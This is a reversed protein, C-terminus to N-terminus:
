LEDQLVHPGADHRAKPSTVTRLLLSVTSRSSRRKSVGVDFKAKVDVSRPSSVPTGPPSLVSNDQQVVVAADMAAIPTLPPTRVRRQSPISDFTKVAPYPQESSHAHQNMQLPPLPALASRPAVGATTSAQALAASILDSDEPSPTRNSTSHRRQWAPLLPPLVASRLPIQEFRDALIKEPLEPLLAPLHHLPTLPRIVLRSDDSFPHADVAESHFSSSSHMSANSQKSALSANRHMLMERQEELVATAEMPAAPPEQTPTPDGFLCISLRDILGPQSSSDVEQPGVELLGVSSVRRERQRKRRYAAWLLYGCLLLAMFVVPVTVGLAIYVTSGAKPDTVTSNGGGPSPTPSVTPSPEVTPSPSPSVSPSAAPSVSPSPSVSAVPSASPSPSSSPSPTVTPSPSASPSPSPTPTPTPLSFYQVYLIGSEWDDVSHTLNVQITQVSARAPLACTLHTSNLVVANVRTNGTVVCQMGVLTYFGSGQITVNQVSNLPLMTPTIQSVLPKDVYQIMHGNNTTQSCANLELGVSRPSAVATALCRLESPSVYIAWLGVGNFLCQTSAASHFGSGRVTVFATSRYYVQSPALSTIVQQQPLNNVHLNLCMPASRANNSDIAVVCVLYRGSQQPTPTWQFQTTVPNAGTVNTLTAGVPLATFSMRIAALPDVYSFDQATINFRMTSAVPSDTCAVPDEEVNPETIVPPYNPICYGGGPGCLICDSDRTCNANVNACSGACFNLQPVVQLIFDFPAKAKGDMLMVQVSYFGVAVDTLNWSLEGTTGNLMLGAPQSPSVDFFRMEPSTAFRFTVVDNDPDSYPLVTSWLADSPTKQVTFIPFSRSFPSSNPTTFSVSTELNLWTTLGPLNVTSIRSRLQINPTFPLGDSRLASSFRHAFVSSTMIWDDAIDIQIVQFELDLYQTDNFDFRTLCCPLSFTQYLSLGSFPPPGVASRRWTAILTFNATNSGANVWSLTGTRLHTAFVSVYFVSSISLFILLIKEM